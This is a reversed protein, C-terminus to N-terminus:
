RRPVAEECRCCPLRAQEKNSHGLPGEFGFTLLPSDEPYPLSPNNRERPEPRGAQHTNSNFFAQFAWAKAWEQESSEEAPRASPVLGGQRSARQKWITTGGSGPFAKFRWSGKRPSSPM